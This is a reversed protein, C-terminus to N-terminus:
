NRHLLHLYYVNSKEKGSYIDTLINGFPHLKLAKETMSQHFDIEKRTMSLRNDDEARYCFYVEPKYILSVLTDDDRVYDRIIFFVDGLRYIVDMEGRVKIVMQTSRVITAVQCMIAEDAIGPLAIEETYWVTINDTPQQNEDLWSASQFYGKWTM